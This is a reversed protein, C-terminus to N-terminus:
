ALPIMGATANEGGTRAPDGLCAKAQALEDLLKAWAAAHAGPRHSRVRSLARDAASRIKALDEEFLPLSLLEYHNPHESGSDLGLWQRYPHLAEAVVSTVQNRTEAGSRKADRGRWGLRENWSLCM